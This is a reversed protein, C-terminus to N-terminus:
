KLCYIQNVYCNERRENNSKRHLHIHLQIKKLTQTQQARDTPDEAVESRLYKHLSLRCEAEVGNPLIVFVVAEEVVNKADDREVQDDAIQLRRAGRADGDESSNKSRDTDQTGPSGQLQKCRSLDGEPVVLEVDDHLDQLSEEVNVEQAM